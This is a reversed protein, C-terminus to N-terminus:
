RFSPIVQEAMLEMSRRVKAAPLGGIRTWGLYDTFDCRDRIEAIRDAVEAPSGCVVAGREIVTDWDVDGLFERAAGYHEYGAIPSQGDAPAIYRALTRYYWMLSDQLDSRAQQTSEAVYTITLAAVNHAAEDAGRKRLTERYRAIHESGAELDFGFVPACLLHFGFRACLDFTAPSLAAMWLPPHPKQVPKPQVSLDDFRYFEGSFGFREETWARRMIEVSEGFMERSRAPDVGYGRFEVPQYGRGVGVDVRGGSLNDLFAFDEAVRLPHNLPLVVVGTGLRIRETRAAVAALTVAPSACHGYETFHHEATWVSDFGLAEAEVMLDIQEGIVDQESRRDPSEFLHLQGFRLGEAGEVV